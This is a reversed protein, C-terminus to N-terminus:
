LIIMIHKSCCVIIREIKKQLIENHSATLFKEYFMPTLKLIQYDNEPLKM